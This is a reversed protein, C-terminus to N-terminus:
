RDILKEAAWETSSYGTNKFFGVGGMGYSHCIISESWQLIQRKKRLQRLAKQKQSQLDQYAIGREKALIRLNKGEYYVGIITQKEAPELEDVAKRVSLARQRQFNREIVDEIEKEAAPDPILDGIFCDEEDTGAVPQELREGTNMPDHRGKATSINVLAFFTNEASYKLRSLFTYGGRPDFANIADIFLPFAEQELDEFTIGARVMATRNAPNRKVIHNLRKYIFRKTDEWLDPILSKNGEQIEAAMEEQTM